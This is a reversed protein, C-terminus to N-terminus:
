CMSCLLVVLLAKALSLKIYCLNVASIVTSLPFDIDLIVYLVQTVLLTCTYMANYLMVIDNYLLSQGTYVNM